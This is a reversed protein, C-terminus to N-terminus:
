YQYCKAAIGRQWMFNGRSLKCRSQRLIRPLQLWIVAHVAAGAGEVEVMRSLM